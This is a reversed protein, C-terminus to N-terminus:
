KRRPCGCARRNTQVYEPRGRTRRHVGVTQRPLVRAEREFRAFRDPDQTFDQPLVKIAVERGLKTDEARYVGGM